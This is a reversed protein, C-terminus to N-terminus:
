DQQNGADVEGIQQKRLRGLAFLFQANASRHTRAAGPENALKQGFAGHERQEAAQGSKDDGVPSAVHQPREARREKKVARNVEGEVSTDESEGQQNQQQGTQNEPNNGGDFRGARVDIFDQFGAAAAASEAPGVISQAAQQYNRFNCQGEYSQYAGAQKKAAHLVCLLEIRSELRLVQQLHIEVEASQPIAGIVALLQEPIGDLAGFSDGSHHAGVNGRVAHEAAAERTGDKAFAFLGVGIIAAGEDVKVIYSGAVELGHTDREDAAAVERIEITFFGRAYGDNVFGHGFGDPRALFRESLAERDHLFWLQELHDADDSGRHHSLDAFIGLGGRVEGHALLVRRESSEDRARVAVRFRQDAGHTRLDLLNVFVEREGVRLGHLLDQSLSQPGRAHAGCQEAEKARERKDQSRNSDVAHQGIGHRLAGTFDTQAHRQARLRALHQPQHEFLAHEQGYNARAHADDHSQGDGAQRTFQEVAYAGSIRERIHADRQQQHGDRQESAVKGRAAGCADIRENGQAHLLTWRSHFIRWRKARLNPSLNTLARWQCAPSVLM